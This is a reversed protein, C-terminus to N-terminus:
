GPGGSPPRNGAVNPPKALSQSNWCECIWASITAMDEKTFPREHGGGIVALVPRGDDLLLRRCDRPDPHLRQLAPNLKM